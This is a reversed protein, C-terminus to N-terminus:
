IENLQWFLNLKNCYLNNINVTTVTCVFTNYASIYKDAMSHQFSRIYKILISNFDLTNM